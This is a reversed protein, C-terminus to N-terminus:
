GRRKRTKTPTRGARRELAVALRKKVEADISAQQRAVRAAAMPDGYVTAMVKDVSTRRVAEVDAPNLHLKAAELNVTNNVIERDRPRDISYFCHQTKFEVVRDAHELQRRVTELARRAGESEGYGGTKRISPIVEKTIWRRFRAAAELRSGFILAYMGPENIFIPAIGPLGLSVSQKDEREVHERIAEATNAYGLANATDAAHFWPEGDIMISRIAHTDFSFPIINMPRANPTEVPNMQQMTM